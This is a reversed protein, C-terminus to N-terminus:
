WPLKYSFQQLLHPEMAEKFTGVSSVAIRMRFYRKDRNLTSVVGWQRRLMEILRRQSGLDFEQTNLYLAQHTRCGDDMFWVALTLPALILSKPVVKRRGRYFERYLVTLQPLSLTTFRYAIRRGNGRRIKPPTGCLNELQRYKWDVYDKQASAHNVELLANAKCRMAGDGLLCGVIISRQAETLSGVTNGESSRLTRPEGNYASENSLM